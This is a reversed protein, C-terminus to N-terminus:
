ANIVMAVDIRNSELEIRNSRSEIRYYHNGNRCRNSELPNSRIRASELGSRCKSFSQVHENKEFTARHRLWDCCLSRVQAHSATHM